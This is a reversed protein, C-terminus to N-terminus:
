AFKAELQAQIQQCREAVVRCDAIIRTAATPSDVHSIALDPRFSRIRALRQIPRVFMPEPDKAHGNKKRKVGDIAEKVMRTVRAAITRTPKKDPSVSACLRWAQGQLDPSPLTSLPRLVIEPVTEPIPTDSDPAGSSQVLTQYVTTSRVLQNATSHCLGFRLKSYEAFSSYQGRWLRSEHIEKLAIGCKLFGTLNTEVQRELQSLRIREQQSLPSLPVCAQETALQLM